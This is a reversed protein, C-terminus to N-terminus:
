GAFGPFYKAILADDSIEKLREDSAEALYSDFKTGFITEPRLYARMKPDNGWQEHKFEIVKKFDDIRYGEKLRANIKSITSKTPRYSKFCIANLLTLANRADDSIKIEEDLSPQEVEFLEPRKLNEESEVEPLIKKPEPNESVLSVSASPANV